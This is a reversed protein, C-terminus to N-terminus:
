YNITITMQIYATIRAAKATTAEHLCANRCAPMSHGHDIDNGAQRCAPKPDAKNIAM